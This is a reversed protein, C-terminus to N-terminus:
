KPWMIFLFRECFQGQGLTYRNPEMSCLAQVETIFSAPTEKAKLLKVVVQTGKYWATYMDAFGGHGLFSWGEICYLPIDLQSGAFRVATRQKIQLLQSLVVPTMKESLCGPLDSVTLAQLM